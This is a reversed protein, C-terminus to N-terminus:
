EPRLEVRNDYELSHGRGDYLGLLDFDADFLEIAHAQGPWARDLVTLEEPKKSTDPTEIYVVAYLQGIKFFNVDWLYSGKAEGEERKELVKDSVRNILEICDDGHRESNLPVSSAKALEDTVSGVLFEDSDNLFWRIVRSASESPPKCLDGALREGVSQASLGSPRLEVKNDYRSSAGKGDYSGLLDFKSDYLSVGAVGGVRIRDESPQTETTVVAYFKGVKFFSVDLLYTGKAEGSQRKKIIKDMERKTLEFCQEGHPAGTMPVTAATRLEDSVFSDIFDDSDSLFGRIVRHADESHPQCFDDGPWEGIDEASLGFPVISLVFLFVATKM